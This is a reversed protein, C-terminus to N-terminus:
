TFRVQYKEDALECKTAQLEMQLSEIANRAKVLLLNRDELERSKEHIIDELQHDSGVGGASLRQELHFIRLKLDFNMKELGTKDAADARLGSGWNDM